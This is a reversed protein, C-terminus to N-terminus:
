STLASTSFGLLTWWNASGDVLKLVQLLLAPSSFELIYCTQTQTLSLPQLPSLFAPCLVFEM